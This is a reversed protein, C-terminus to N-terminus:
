KKPAAATAADLRRIAEATLDLGPEAWILGAEQASLLMSLHKEQAMKQLIPVLKQQFETQLEVNLKQVEQQAEQQLRQADQPTKKSAAEIEGKKKTVLTEMRANAARGEVSNAAIAQMNVYAIKAGPPLPAQPPAPSPAAGRNTPPAVQAFSSTATLALVILLFRKMTGMLM